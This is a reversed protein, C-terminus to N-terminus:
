SRTTTRPRRGQPMGVNLVTTKAGGKSDASDSGGCAALGTTIIAGTLAFTLVRRARM